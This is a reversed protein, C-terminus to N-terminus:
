GAACGVLPAPRQNASIAGTIHKLRRSSRVLREVINQGFQPVLFRAAAVEQMSQPRGMGRAGPGAVDDDGTGAGASAGRIRRLGPGSAGGDSSPKGREVVCGNAANDVVGEARATSGTGLRSTVCGKMM